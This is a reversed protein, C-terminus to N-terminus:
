SCKRMNFILKIFQNLDHVNSYLSGAPVHSLPLQDRERGEFYGKSLQKKPMENLTFSSHPMGILDFIQKKMYDACNEGSIREVLLGLISVSTNAYSYAFGKAWVTEQDDVIGISLGVIQHENMKDEIITSLIQKVSEYDGKQITNSNESVSRCSYLSIACLILFTPVTSLIKGKM